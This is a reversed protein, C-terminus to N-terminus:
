RDNPVSPSFSKLDAVEIAEYLSSQNRKVTMVYDAKRDEVLFRATERQTHLADMTVVSGAIDLGELLPRLAKIENANADVRRQAITVGGDHLVASLLTCHHRGGEQTGRLAKGDVAIAKGTAATQTLTWQGIEQDLSVPDVKAL